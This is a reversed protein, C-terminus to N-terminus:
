ESIDKDFVVILRELYDDMEQTLRIIAVEDARSAAQELEDGVKSIFDFGYGSGTGKINHGIARVPEFDNRTLAARIAILDHRRNELYGDILRELNSDIYVIINAHDM